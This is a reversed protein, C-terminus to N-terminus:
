QQSRVFPVRHSRAFTELDAALEDTNFWQMLRSCVVRANKQKLTIIVYGKLAEIQEIDQPEITRFGFLKRTTLRNKGIEVFPRRLFFWIVALMLYLFVTVWYLSTRGANWYAFMYFLGIFALLLSFVWSRGKHSVVDGKVSIAAQGLRKRRANVKHANRALQRGWKGSM